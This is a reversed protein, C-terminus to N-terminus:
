QAWKAAGHRLWRLPRRWARSEQASEQHIKEKKEREQAGLFRLLSAIKEKNLVYFTM